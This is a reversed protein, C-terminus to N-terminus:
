NRAPDTRKCRFGLSGRSVSCGNGTLSHSLRVCVCVHQLLQDPILERRTSSLSACLCLCVCVCACVRACVCAFEVSLACVCVCVCVRVSRYLAQFPFALLEEDGVFGANQKPKMLAHFEAGDEGAQRLLETSV